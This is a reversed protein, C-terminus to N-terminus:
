RSPVFCALRLFDALMDDVVMGHFAKVVDDRATAITVCTAVLLALQTLWYGVHRRADSVYLDVLLVLAPM